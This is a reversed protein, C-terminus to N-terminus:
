VIFTPLDTAVLCCVQGVLHIGVAAFILNRYGLRQAFWQHPASTVIVAASYCATALTYSRQDIGLGGYVYRNALAISLNDLFYVLVMLT